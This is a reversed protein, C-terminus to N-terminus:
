ECTAPHETAGECRNACGNRGDGTSQSCYSLGAHGNSITDILLDCHKAAYINRPTFDGLVQRIFNASSIKDEMHEYKSHNQIQERNKCCM